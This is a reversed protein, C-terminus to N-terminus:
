TSWGVLRIPSDFGCRCSGLAPTVNGQADIASVQAMISRVYQCSPCHFTAICGHAKTAADARFWKSPQILALM